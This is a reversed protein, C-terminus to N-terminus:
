TLLKTTKPRIILVDTKESNLLLFNNTMWYKIDVLCEMIKKIQHTECPQSSIYLRTDDAYCHFSVGHKRIINGLPLMYLTFLLSGLVSGQPVGYQVQSRYSVQFTPMLIRLELNHSINHSWLSSTSQWRLWNPNRTLQSFLLNEGICLIEKRPISNSETLMVGHRVLSSAWDTCLQRLEKLPLVTTGSFCNWLSRPCIADVATTVCSLGASTLNCLLTGHHAHSRSVCRRILVGIHAGPVTRARSRVRHVWPAPEPASETYERLPSQLPSQPSVSRFPSQVPCQLRLLLWDQFALQGYRDWPHIRWSAYWGLFRLTRQLKMPWWRPRQLKMPQWQPHQLKTSWWRLCVLWRLQPVHWFSWLNGLRWTTRGGWGGASPSMLPVTSSTRSPRRM